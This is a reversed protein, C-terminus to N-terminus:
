VSILLSCVKIQHCCPMGSHEFSGCECKYEGKDEDVQLRYITKCWKERFVHRTHRAIYSKRPEIEELMYQGYESLSHGFQELMTRTYVKGAHVEIPLNAKLVM